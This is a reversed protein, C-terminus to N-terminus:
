GFAGIREDVELWHDGSEDRVVNPSWCVTIGKAEALRGFCRPCLLGGRNGKVQEYLDGNSMWLMYRKGCTQCTEGNDHLVAQVWLTRFMAVFRGRKAYWWACNLILRLWYGREYNNPGSQATM